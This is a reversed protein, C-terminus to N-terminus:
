KVSITYGQAHWISFFYTGNAKPRFSVTGTTSGTHVQSRALITGKADVMWLRTYRDVATATITYLRGRRLNALRFWDTDPNTSHESAVKGGGM